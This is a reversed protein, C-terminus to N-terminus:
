LVGGILKLGAVFESREIRVATYIVTGEHNGETEIYVSGDHYVVRAMNHRGDADRFEVSAAGLKFEHTMM